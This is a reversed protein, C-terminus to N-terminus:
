RAKADAERLYIASSLWQEPQDILLAAARALNAANIEALATLESENAVVLQAPTKLKPLKGAEPAFYESVALEGRRVDTAIKGNELLDMAAALQSPVGIFPVGKALAFAEAAVIGIRLGTFPGPGMGAVVAQLKTESAKLAQQAGELFEGIKELHEKAGANHRQ